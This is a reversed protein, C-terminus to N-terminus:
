LLKKIRNIEEDLSPVMKKVFDLNIQKLKSSLENNNTEDGTALTETDGSTSLLPDSGIQKNRYNANVWRIFERVKNKDGSIDVGAGVEPTGQFTKYHFSNKSHVNDVKGNPDKKAYPNETTRLGMSDAKDILDMMVKRNTTGIHLHNDHGGWRIRDKIKGGDAGKDFEDQPNNTVPNFVLESIGALDSEILILRLTKM